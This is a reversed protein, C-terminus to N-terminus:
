LNLQRVMPATGNFTVAGQATGFNVGTITLLSGPAGAIASLSTIMVGTGPNFVTFKAGASQAGAGTTVVVNGTTAGVPVKAVITKDGWSSIASAVGNFTVSGQTAGFNAGTITISSGAMGSNPSLGAIGPLVTFAAGVSAQGGVTVAVPGSTTGAPVQTTISTWGWNSPTSAIGNFAVTSNGQASRVNTGAIVGAAGIAGSNRRAAASQRLARRCRFRSRRISIAM